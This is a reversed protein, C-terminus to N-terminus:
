ILHEQILGCSIQTVVFYSGSAFESQWIQIRFERPLAPFAGKRIIYSAFDVRVTFPQSPCLKGIHTTHVFRNDVSRVKMVKAKEVIFKGEKYKQTEDFAQEQWNVLVSNIWQCIFLASEFSLQM